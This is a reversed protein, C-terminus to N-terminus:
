HRAWRSFHFQCRVPIALHILYRLIGPHRFCQAIRRTPRVAARYRRQDQDAQERAARDAHGKAPLSFGSRPAILTPDERPSISICRPLGVLESARSAGVDVFILNAVLRACTPGNAVTGHVDQGQAQPLHDAGRDFADLAFAVLGRDGVISVVLHDVDLGLLGGSALRGSADCGRELVQSHARPARGSVGNSHTGCQGHRSRASALSVARCGM